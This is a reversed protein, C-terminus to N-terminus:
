PREGELLWAIAEDDTLFLRPATRYTSSLCSESWGLSEPLRYVVRFPYREGDLAGGDDKNSSRDDCPHLAMRVRAADWTKETCFTQYVTRM